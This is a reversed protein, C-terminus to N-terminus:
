TSEFHAPAACRASSARTQTNTNAHATGTSLQTLYAAPIAPLKVRPRYQLYSPDESLFGIRRSRRSLSFLVYRLFGCAGDWVSPNAITSGNPRTTPKAVLSPPRPTIARLAPRGIRWARNVFSRRAVMDLRPDANYRCWNALTAWCAHPARRWQSATNLLPCFHGGFASCGFLGPVTSISTPRAAMIFMALVRHQDAFLGLCISSCSDTHIKPLCAYAMLGYALVM